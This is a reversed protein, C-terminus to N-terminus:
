SWAEIFAFALIDVTGFATHAMVIVIRIIGLLITALVLSDELVEILAALLLQLFIAHVQAHRIFFSEAV